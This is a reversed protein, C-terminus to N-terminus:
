FGHLWILQIQQVNSIEAVIYHGTWQLDLQYLCLHIYICISVSYISSLFVHTWWWSMPLPKWTMTAAQHPRLRVEAQQVLLRQLSLAWLLLHNAVERQSMYADFSPYVVNTTFTDTTSTAKLKRSAHRGDSFEIPTHIRGAVNDMRPLNQHVCLQRKMFENQWFDCNNHGEVM